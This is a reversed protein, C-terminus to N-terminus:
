EDDEMDPEDDVTRPPIPDPEDAGSGLPRSNMPELYTDGGDVPPRDELDRIDNASFAGVERMVRYFAARAASDGRLLGQASYRAYVSSGTLEKTIRQETPALWQPNLDFVVWGTAQQELGTGWSTSKETMGLLFAPVGFFRGVEATQFSRSELFQADTNPMTMSQFKLASDLIAVDHAKSLGSVKAKWRSRVADAQDETLRQETQLIGSLLSGSGFLRAGYEEAALGLGIGQSALRIPSVGTTGDYGLGPLHFIDDGSLVHREGDDATVEFLKGAPNAATAPTRCVRVREPSIPFLWATRGARDKVKQLYANGWLCRHVYTLRWLELPTLDPHPNELLLSVVQERTGRRYTKLPLSSSVSSILTVCRNVAAYAMSKTPTVSVGSVSKPGNLADLLATSTLPYLPSEVNRREFVGFLSM